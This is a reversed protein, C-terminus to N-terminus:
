GLGPAAATLRLGESRAVSMDPLMSWLGTGIDYLEATPTERDGGGQGNELFNGGEIIVNGDLLLSARHRKRGLHLTGSLSFTETIPDFLETTDTSIGGTQVGGFLWMKNNYVCGAM